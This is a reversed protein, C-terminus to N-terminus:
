RRHLWQPREVNSGMLKLFPLCDEVLRFSFHESKEHMTMQDLSDDFGESILARIMRKGSKAVEPGEIKWEGISYCIHMLPIWIDIDREVFSLCSSFAMVIPSTLIFELTPRHFPGIRLFTNLLYVFSRLLDDSLIFRNTILFTVFRYSPLVVKELIMKRNKFKDIVSINGVDMLSSPFALYICDIIISQNGTLPLTHPQVTAFVKAVLDSEMLGDRIASSVASITFRLFKFTAAVITSHPSSLLTLIGEIFGSLPSASSPVLDTAPKPAFDHENWEPELTKLFQVARNQLADDFPYEVKVLAVLSSYMKSKDEISLDSNANFHLFPEQIPEVTSHSNPSRNLCADISTNIALTREEM